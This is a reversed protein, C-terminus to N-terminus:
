KRIEKEGYGTYNYQNLYNTSDPNSFDYEVRNSSGTGSDYRSKITYYEYYGNKGLKGLVKEYDYNTSEGTPYTVKVLNTYIYDIMEPSYVGTVVRDKTIGTFNMDDLGARGYIGWVIVSHSGSAYGHLEEYAVNSNGGSRSYLHNYKMSDLLYTSRTGDSDGRAKPKDHYFDYMGAIMKYTFKTKKGDQDIKETLLSYLNTNIWQDEGKSPNSVQSSPAELKYKIVNNDPLTVTIQSSTKSIKM